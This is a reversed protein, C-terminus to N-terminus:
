FYDELVAAVRQTAGQDGLRSHLGGLKSQIEERKQPHEVYNSLLGVLEVRSAQEQFREPVVEAGLVLNVMGFYPTSRVLRKALWASLFNMKYMIVMPVQMLGVMITATGSATLIMDMMHIMHFPESKIVQVSFSLNNLKAKIEDLELSPAVLLVIKLNPYKRVLDGAVELQCSLHHSIESRRSGPMLGLVLDGQSFGYENRARSRSEVDFLSPNLEDLLPHGVFTVDVGHKKYFDVEFPFVVLMKDVYKKVLEIRKTRWAWLQPSIYYIVPIGLNKLEKALRLNFDPYDLLLAFKPRRREAESVIHDFTAKISKYHRLVEQIGVVAMEESRGLANFGLDCMSQSGVGFTELQTNKSRWLELLRTAYLASSAEGAVILVSPIRSDLKM